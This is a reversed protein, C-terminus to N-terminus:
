LPGSPRTSYRCPVFSLGSSLGPVTLLCRLPWRVGPVCPGSQSGESRTQIDRQLHDTHSHTHSHMHTRACRWEGCPLRISPLPWRNPVLRCGAEESSNCLLHCTFLKWRESLLGDRNHKWWIEGEEHQMSLPTGKKLVKLLGIRM